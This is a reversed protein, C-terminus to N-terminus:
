ILLVVHTDTKSLMDLRYAERYTMPIFPPGSVLKHVQKLSSCAAYNFFSVVHSQLKAPLCSVASRTNTGHQDTAPSHRHHNLATSTCSPLHCCSQHCFISPSTACPPFHIWGSPTLLTIGAISFSFSSIIWFLFTCTSCDVICRTCPTSTTYAIM